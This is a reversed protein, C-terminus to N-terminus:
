EVLRGVFVIRRPREAITAGSFKFRELDIGIHRVTIRDAPIGYELATKRIDESVAVFHVRPNQAMTLLRQPYLRKSFRLKNREWADRHISIDQGHLTVVLPLSLPELTPWFMVADTAFHVHLLDSGEQKCAQIFEKRSVGVEALVARHIKGFLGPRSGDLLRLDLDDIPLGDPARVFGVLM